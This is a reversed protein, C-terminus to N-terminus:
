RGLHIRRYNDSHQPLTGDEYTFHWTTRQDKKSFVLDASAATHPPPLRYDLLPVLDWDKRANLYPNLKGVKWSSNLKALVSGPVVLSLGLHRLLM